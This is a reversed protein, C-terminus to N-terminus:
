SQIFERALSVVMAALNAVLLLVGRALTTEVRAVRDKVENLNETLQRYEIKHIREHPCPECSDNM